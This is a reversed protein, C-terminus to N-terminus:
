APLEPDAWAAKLYDFVVAFRAAFAMRDDVVRSSKALPQFRSAFNQYERAVQGLDWTSRAFSRVDQVDLSAGRFVNISSSANLSEIAATLGSSPERPHIFVGSGIPAFGEVHLLSRLRDRKVRQRADFQFHVITWERNWKRPTDGFIKRSGADIEARAAVTPRYYKTRGDKRSHLEDDREMRYLEMRVSEESRGVSALAKVFWTGPIEGGTEPGYFSFSSYIFYSVPVTPVTSLFAHRM